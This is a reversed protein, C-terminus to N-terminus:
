SAPVQSCATANETVNDRFMYGCMWDLGYGESAKFNVIGMRTAYSQFRHWIELKPQPLIDIFEPLSALDEYRWLVTYLISVSLQQVRWLHKSSQACAKEAHLIFNLATVIQMPKFLYSVYHDGNCGINLCNSGGWGACVTESQAVSGHLFAMYSRVYPSAVTGYYEQLFLEILEQGNLEPQFLLKGVVFDKLAAMDGGPGRFAGEEFVGKVSHRAFFAINPALNFWNPFPQALNNFNTSSGCYRCVWLYILCRSLFDSKVAVTANIRSDRSYSFVSALCHLPISYPHLVSFM